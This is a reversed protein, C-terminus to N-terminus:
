ITAKKLVESISSAYFINMKEKIEEPLETVDKKNQMPIIVDLINYRMAALLKEKLGGIPLVNGKLTIEGTMAIKCSVKKNTMVSYLATTLTVGASPGDKKVAGEPVHIHIDKTTFLKEDIGFEQANARLYSVAIRASEKMVDGLQGTLLIEGKGDYLAVEINLMEGGVATWALGNVVGVTNETMIKDDSYKFIGLYKELNSENISFLRAKKKSRKKVKKEKTEEFNAVVLDELEFSDKVAEKEAQEEAIVIEMAVKRLIKEMMRNLERVGSERTYNIIISSLAADNIEIKANIGMKKILKPLLHKKAIAQKELLTYGSMEILEMRDLLPRPIADVNNATTVFFVKSLDYPMDVYHDQFTSNQSPDLVELLASAPDGRMDSTLKDIEDLLFLPNSCGADKISSLIRGAMSAVYTRRHGRIEAEDRIGGLSIRVYKKGLAKAISQCISTKGVGPAGVFCIISGSNEGTLKRVALFELIRTKVEDMGYHDEELIKRANEMDISEKSYTNWPLAACFEVYSKIGFYEASSPSIMALKNCEKILKIKIDDSAKMKTIKAFLESEDEADSENLEENIAKVQEKLYAEKQKKMIEETVKNAISQDLKKLEVEVTLGEVIHQMIESYSYSAYVVEKDIEEFIKALNFLNNLILEASDKMISLKKKQVSSDIASIQTLLSNIKKLYLKCDSNAFLDNYYIKEEFEAHYITSDRSEKRISFAKVAHSAIADLSFLSFKSQKIGTIKALVGFFESKETLGDKVGKAIIIIGDCVEVSHKLVDLDNPETIGLHIECFPLIVEESYWIIPLGKYKELEKIM